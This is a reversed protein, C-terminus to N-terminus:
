LSPLCQKTKDLSPNLFSLRLPKRSQRHSSSTDPIFVFIMFRERHGAHSVTNTVKADSHGFFQTFSSSLTTKRM